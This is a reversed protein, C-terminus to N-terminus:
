FFLIKLLFTCCIFFFNGMGVDVTMLMWFEMIFAKPPPFSTVFLLIFILISDSNKVDTSSALLCHFLTLLFEPPFKGDLIKYEASSETLHLSLVFVNKLRCPSLVKSGTSVKRPFLWVLYKLLILFYIFFAFSVSDLLCPVLVPFCHLSAWHTYFLSLQKPIWLNDSM